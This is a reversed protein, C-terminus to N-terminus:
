NKLLGSARVAEMDTRANPNTIWDDTSEGAEARLEEVLNQLDEGASAYSGMGAAAAQATVVALDALELRRKHTLVDVQAQAWSPSHARVEAASFGYGRM